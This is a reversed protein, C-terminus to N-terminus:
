STNRSLDWMELVRQLAPLMQIHTCWKSPVHCYFLSSDLQTNEELKLFDERKCSSSKFWQLDFAMDEAESGYVTLGARFASFVVHINCSLFPLLGPHNQSKLLTDMNKWVAKNINPGDSLLSFFRNVSFNLKVDNVIEMISSSIDIAFTHGFFLATLIRVVVENQKESWFRLLVDIQHKCQSTTTEDFMVTYASSVMCFEDKLSKQSFPRLGDSTVYLAKARSLSLNISVTCPFMRSFLKSIDDCSAFSFKSM